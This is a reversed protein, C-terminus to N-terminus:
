KRAEQRPKDQQHDIPLAPQDPGYRLLIIREEPSLGLSAAVDSCLGCLIPATPRGCDACEIM